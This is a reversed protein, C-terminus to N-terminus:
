PRARASRRRRACPRRGRPRACTSSGPRRARASRPRAEARRSRAHFVVLALSVLALVALVIAGLARVLPWRTSADARRLRPPGDGLAFFALEASSSGAATASRGRRGHQFVHDGYVALRVPWVVRVALARAARGRVRPPAAGGTPGAGGAARIGLALAGGGLWYTAAGYLAAPSSCSCPSSADRRRGHADSGARPSALVGAIGALLVLALVVGPARRPRRPSEDRLAAFTARPEHLRRARAAM